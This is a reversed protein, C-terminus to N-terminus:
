EIRSGPKFWRGIGGLSGVWIDIVFSQKQGKDAPLRTIGM